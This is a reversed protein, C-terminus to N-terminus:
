AALSPTSELQEAFEALETASGPRLTEVLEVFNRNLMGFRVFTWRLAAHQSELFYDEEAPSWKRPCAKKLSALDLEAQGRMGTNFFQLLGIYAQFGEEVEAENMGATLEQVVLWDMKAHQSEELWHFRLLDRFMPDIAGTGRVSAVYHDLTMWEIHLIMLAVGLSPQSLVHQAISEAPGIVPCARGFGQEFLARFRRFLEIHKAEEEAFNALAEQRQEGSLEQTQASHDQLFPLIFEEVLGFTALYGHGRIQNHLRREEATLFSLEESRALSEPLFDQGFDLQRGGLVEEITWAVQQSTALCSAYSASNSM